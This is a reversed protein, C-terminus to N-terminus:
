SVGYNVARSSCVVQLEPTRNFIIYGQFGGVLSSGTRVWIVNVVSFVQFLFCVFIFSKLTNKQQSFLNVVV